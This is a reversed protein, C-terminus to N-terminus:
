LSRYFKCKEYSLMCLRRLTAADPLLQGRALPRPQHGAPRDTAGPISCAAAPDAQMTPQIALKSQQLQLQWNTAVACACPNAPWSSHM